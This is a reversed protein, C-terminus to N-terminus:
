GKNLLDLLGTDCRGLYFKSEKAWLEGSKLMVTLSTKDYGGTVGASAPEIMKDLTSVDVKKEIDYNEDCGLANNIYESESWHVIIEKIDDLSKVQNM